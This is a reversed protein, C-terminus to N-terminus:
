FYIYLFRTLWLFRQYIDNHIVQNLLGLGLSKFWFKEIIFTRVRISRYIIPFLYLTVCVYFSFFVCVVWFVQSSYTLSDLQAM